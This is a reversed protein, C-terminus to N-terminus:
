YGAQDELLRGNEDVLVYVEEGPKRMLFKERAWKEILKRNGFVENRERKVEEIKKLYYKKENELEVRKTHYSWVSRLNNNDIFAVWAFWVLFSVVYFNRGRALWRFIFSENM